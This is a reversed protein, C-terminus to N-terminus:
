MNHGFTTYHEGNRTCAHGSLQDKLGCGGECDIKYTIGESHSNGTGGSSCMFCDAGGWEQPRFPNSVQLTKEMNDWNEGCGEDQTWEDVETWKQYTRKLKEEPTSRVFLVSDFGVDKYWTLKKQLREEQRQEQNWEKPRNMLRIGLKGKEELAKRAAKMLYYRFAQPYNWSYQVDRTMLRSCHLVIRLMEQTLVSRQTQILLASKVHIM